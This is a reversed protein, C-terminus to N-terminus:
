RKSRVPPLFYLDAIEIALSEATYGLSELIEAIAEPHNEIQTQMPLTSDEEEQYTSYDSWHRRNVRGYDFDSKFLPWDDKRRIPESDGATRDFVLKSYDANILAARLTLAFNVDQSEIECHAGQYGVSLNTCEGVYDAYENSDTYSGGNNPSMPLGIAIALSEAFRDSATRLGCQHTIIDKDGRRDLSIVANIGALVAPRNQVLWKSGICGSEEQAHIVYRAAIGAKIMELILWIGTGCDAGLCSSQKESKALQIFGDKTEIKQMGGKTHVSDHHAAFILTPANGVDLVYNGAMDPQGFIPALFRANFQALSKSGHKRRYTLISELTAIANNM